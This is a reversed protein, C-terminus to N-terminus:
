FFHPDNLKKALKLCHSVNGYKKCLFDSIPNMVKFCKKKCLNRMSMTCSVSRSSSNSMTPISQAMALAKRLIRLNTM